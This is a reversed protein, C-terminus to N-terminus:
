SESEQPDAIRAEQGFIEYTDGFIHVADCYEWRAREKLAPLQDLSDATIQVKAVIEIEIRSKMAKTM